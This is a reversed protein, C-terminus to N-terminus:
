YAWHHCASCYYDPRSVTIPALVTTVTASRDKLTRMVQPELDGFTRAESTMWSGLTRTLTQLQDTMATLLRDLQAQFTTHDTMAEEPPTHHTYDSVGDYRM